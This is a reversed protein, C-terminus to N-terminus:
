VVTALESGLARSNLFVASAGQLGASASTVVEVGPPFQANDPNRTVARVPVGAEVLHNVLPRGVNGTAGTVLIPKMCELVPRGAPFNGTTSHLKGSWQRTTSVHAVCWLHLRCPAAM